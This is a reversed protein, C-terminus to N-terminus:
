PSSRRRRETIHNAIAILAQIVSLARGEAGPGRPVPTVLTYGHSDMRFRDLPEISTIASRVFDDLTNRADEASAERILYASDFEEVGIKVEPSMGFTDLARTVPNEHSVILNHPVATAFVTAALHEDDDVFSVRLSLKDRSFLLTLGTGGSDLQNYPAHRDYLDGGLKAQLTKILETTSSM